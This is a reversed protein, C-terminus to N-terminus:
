TNSREREREEERLTPGAGSYISDGSVLQATSSTGLLYQASADGLHTVSKAAVTHLSARHSDTTTRAFKEARHPPIVHHTDLIACGPMPHRGDPTACIAETGVQGSPTQPWNTAVTGTGIHLSHATPQLSYSDVKGLRPLNHSARPEPM